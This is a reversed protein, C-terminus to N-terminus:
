CGHWIRGGLEVALAPRDSAELFLAVIAREALEEGAQTWSQGADMSHYVGRNTALWLQRDQVFTPSPVIATVNVENALFSQASRWEGSPQERFIRILRNRTGLFISSEPDAAAAALAVASLESELQALNLWTQGEDVTQWLRLQVNGGANTQATVALWMSSEHVAPLIQLLQDGSWPVPSAQLGASADWRYLMGGEDGLLLSAAPRGSLATILTWPWPSDALLWSQWTAAGDGPLEAQWLQGADDAVLLRAGREDRQLTAALPYITEQPPQLPQWTRGDDVSWALTGVNDLAVLQQGSGRWVLPPAHASLGQNSLQWQGAETHYRAVGDGLLGAYLDDDPAVALSLAIGEGGAMPQWDTGGNTSQFIGAVTGAILTQPGTVVLCSIGDLTQAAALQSWSVGDDTSHYLGSSATALYLVPAGDTASSAVLATFTDDPLGAGMERWSRGANRSRYLGGSATGAWLVESIAFDPACILTQVALDHLGFTSSEWSLGGDQSRFIGEATATFLTQDTAFEPSFVIETAQGLGTWATVESWSAGSDESRYLRGGLTSAFVITNGLSTPPAFAVTLLTPDTLGTHSSQWTVGGDTSRFLGAPTAALVLRDQAFTPSVVVASVTGGSWEGSWQWQSFNM